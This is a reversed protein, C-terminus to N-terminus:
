QVRLPEAFLQVDDVRRAIEIKEALRQRRQPDDIKREHHHIRLVADADAGLAHPLARAIAADRLHDHDIRHVFRVRVEVVHEGARALMIAM